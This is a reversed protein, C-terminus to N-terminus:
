NLEGLTPLHLPEGARGPCVGFRQLIGGHRHESTICVRLGFGKPLECLENTGHM